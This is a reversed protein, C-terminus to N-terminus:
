GARRHDRPSTGRERTFATSLAYASGYGVQRAVSALTSGPERLLDAALALRWQTLYRMPPEGVQEHFRRALASRSVGVAAALTALTWPHGPHEHLRRLAPGVVPDGQARYWHRAPAEPRTMWRRVVAILLLDLLRDLMTGQGPLDRTAEEALYGVLPDDWDAARVVVLAPLAALLRRSVASELEYTGTVLVDAGDPSNGWTRVGLYQMADLPRGLPDTCRQGPHIMAQPARDPRDAVVYPDPGRVVAVDGTGLLVPEADAPVLWARGRAPAVVTLPAEDQVRLSWPPDLSARLVFAGRARPGDLLQGLPDM